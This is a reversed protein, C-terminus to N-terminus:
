PDCEWPSATTRVAARLKASRARSNQAAEEESCAVARRTCLQFTAPQPQVEGPLLRSTQVASRDAFFSKVVRDELSHFSVVVLRGGPDLLHEAASLARKLEGLEDNVFIRLGQFTRTAPDIGDRGKRVVRRVIEALQRTTEFPGTLQREQVIARAVRRSHREEGFHYIIDAIEGEEFTNVVDAASLGNQEMRMDLPGDKMFSFGRRGEDIQMSSVGVDLVIGAIHSFGACAILADMAGFRGPLFHLRGQYQASLAAAHPAVDPDRDIAVVHATPAADLLARSYGGAGFTADIYVSGDQVALADLVESLMVPIHLAAAM